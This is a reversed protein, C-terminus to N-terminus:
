TQRGPKRRPRCRYRPRRSATQRERWMCSRLAPSLTTRRLVLKLAVSPAVAETTTLRLAGLPGKPSVMGITTVPPVADASSYLAGSDTTKLSRHLSRCVMAMGSPSSASISPSSVMASVKPSKGVPTVGPVLAVAVTVIVSVSLALTRTRLRQRRPQPLAGRHLQGDGEVAVGGEGRRLRNLEGERAAALWGRSDVEGDRIGPPLCQGDGYASM